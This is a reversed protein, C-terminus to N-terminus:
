KSKIFKGTFLESSNTIRYFYSGPNLSGGNFEFYNEGPSAGQKEEHLREGLINYVQLSVHDDFPTYFGIRTVDSFPNPSNPFVHFENTQIPDINSPWNVTLSVSTSDTIEGGRVIVGAGINIYASVTIKLPFKGAEEPTGFIQICYASDPYFIEDNLVYTLGPPLNGVTDVTVYALGVTLEGVSATDPAIVTIVEDYAENLMADPLNPPCIQGPEGTDKCNATDPECQANLRMSPLLALALLVLLAQINKMAEGKTGQLSLLM